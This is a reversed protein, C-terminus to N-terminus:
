GGNAPKPRKQFVTYFVASYYGIVALGFLVGAQIVPGGITDEFDSHGIVSLMLSAGAWLLAYALPLMLLHLIWAKSLRKSWRWFSISVAIPGLTALLWGFCGAAQGWASMTQMSTYLDAADLAHGLFLKTTIAVAVVAFVDLRNPRFRSAMGFDYRTPL